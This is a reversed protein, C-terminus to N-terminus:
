PQAELVVEIVRDDELVVILRDGIAFYEGLEPYEDLLAFYEDSLFVVQEPTMTDPQYNTDTWIGDLYLFTKEGITQVPNSVAPPQNPV